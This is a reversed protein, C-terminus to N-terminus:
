WYIHLEGARKCNGGEDIGPRDGDWGWRQVLSMAPSFASQLQRHHVISWTKMKACSKEQRHHISSSTILACSWLFNGFWKCRPFTQFLFLKVLKLKSCNFRDLDLELWTGPGCSWLLNYINQVIPFSQIILDRWSWNFDPALVCFRPLDCFYPCRLAIKHTIEFSFSKFLTKFYWNLM